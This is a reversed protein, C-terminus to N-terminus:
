EGIELQSAMYNLVYTVNKFKENFLKRSTRYYHCEVSLEKVMQLFIQWKYENLYPLTVIDDKYYSFQTLLSDIQTAYPKVYHDFDYNCQSKKVKNYTSKIYKLEDNLQNIYQQM